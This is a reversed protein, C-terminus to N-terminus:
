KQDERLRAPPEVGGVDAGQPVGGAARLLLRVEVSRSLNFAEEWSTASATVTTFQAAYCSPSSGPIAVRSSTTSRDHQSLVRGRPHQHHDRRVGAREGQDYATSRHSHRRAVFGSSAFRQDVTRPADASSALPLRRPAFTSSCRSCRRTSKRRDDGRGRTSLLVYHCSRARRSRPRGTSAPGRVEIRRRAQM